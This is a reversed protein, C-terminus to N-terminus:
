NCNLQIGLTEPSVIVPFTRPLDDLISYILYHPLAAPTTFPLTDEHLIISVKVIYDCLLYMIRALCRRYVFNSRRGRENPYPYSKM